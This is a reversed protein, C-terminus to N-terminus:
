RPEDPLAPAIAFAPLNLSGGTSRIEFCWGAYHNGGLEADEAFSRAAMAAERAAADLDPLDVGEDDWILRGSPARLHFFFRPM